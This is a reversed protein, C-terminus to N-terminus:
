EDRLAEVQNLRKRLVVETRAVFAIYLGFGIWVAINAYMLWDFDTM